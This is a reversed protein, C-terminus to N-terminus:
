ARAAETKWKKRLLIAAKAVKENSSKRLKSVVVGIKSAIIEQTTLTMGHLKELAALHSSKEAGGEQEDPQELIRNMSELNKVRDMDPRMSDFIPLKTLQDLCTLIDEHSTEPNELKKKLELIDEERVPKPAPVLDEVGWQTAISAVLQSVSEEQYSRLEVLRPLLVSNSLVEKEVSPIQQLSTLVKVIKPWENLALGLEKDANVLRQEVDEEKKIEKKVEPAAEERKVEQEPEVETKVPAAEPDKTASTVSAAAAVPATADASAESKVPVEDGAPADPVDDMSAIVRAVGEKISAKHHRLDMKLRKELLKRVTKTTMEEFQCNALIWKIEKELVASLEEDNVESGTVKESKVKPSKAPKSAAAETKVDVGKEKKPVKSPSANTPSSKTGAAAAAPEVDASPKKRKKDEKDAGADKEKKSSSKKEKKSKAPKKEKAVKKEKTKKEKHKKEKKKKNKSENDLDMDEDEDHEEDHESAAEDDEDADEEVEMPEEREIPPPPELTPDLDSPVMCPPLRIDEPTSLYDEAEQIAFQLDELAGKKKVLHKPHGKLFSEQDSCNWPKLVGKKLPVLSFDHSGFYYVLGFDKPFDRAKRLISKHGNGLLHLNPRLKTPDCIYVPWWPFGELIYWGVSNPAIATAM